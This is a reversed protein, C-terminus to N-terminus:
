CIKAGWCEYFGRFGDDSRPAWLIPSKGFSADFKYIHVEKNAVFLEVLIRFIISMSPVMGLLDLMQILLISVDM